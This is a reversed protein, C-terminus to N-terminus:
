TGLFRIDIAFPPPTSALPKPIMVPSHTALSLNATSPPPTPLSSLPSPSPPPPPPPAYHNPLSPLPAIMSPFTTYPMSSFSQSEM